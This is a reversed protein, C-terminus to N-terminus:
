SANGNLQDEAMTLLDVAPAVGAAITDDRCNELYARAATVLNYSRLWDRRKMTHVREPREAEPDELAEFEIGITKEDLDVAVLEDSSPDLIYMKGSITARLLKYGTKEVRSKLKSFRTDNATAM